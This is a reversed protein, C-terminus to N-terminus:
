AEAAGACAAELYGAIEGADPVRQRCVVKGDVRLAPPQRVGRAIMATMDEVRSVEAASGLGTRALAERLATELAATREDRLGLLEIKM